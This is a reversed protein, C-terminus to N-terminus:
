NVQYYKEIFESKILNEFSAFFEEYEYFEFNSDQELLYSKFSSNEAFKENLRNLNTFLKVSNTGIICYTFFVAGYPIDKGRMNLFWAIEDLSTVVLYDCNLGSMYQRIQELKARTSQGTNADDLKILSEFQLTPKNYENWVLDILNTPTHYLVSHNAKLKNEITQFLDEEYLTADIGVYSSKPVNRALWDGISLTDPQGDKMLQWNSDLQKEAQLFYRGDTWLLAEQHTVM